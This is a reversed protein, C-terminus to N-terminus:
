EPWRKKAIRELELDFYKQPAGEVQDLLGHLFPAEQGAYLNSFIDCLQLTQFGDSTEGTERLEHVIQVVKDELTSGYM